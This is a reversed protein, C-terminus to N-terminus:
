LLDLELEWASGIPANANREQPEHTSPEGNTVGRSNQTPDLNGVGPKIFTDRSTHSTKIPDFEIEHDDSLTTRTKEFASRISLLRDTARFLHVNSRGIRDALTICNMEFKSFDRLCRFSSNHAENERTSESGRM